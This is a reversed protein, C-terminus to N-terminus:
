STQREMWRFTTSCNILFHSSDKKFYKLQYLIFNSKNKNFLINMNLTWGFKTWKLCSNLINNLNSDNLDRFVQLCFLILNRNFTQKLILSLVVIGCSICVYICVSQCCCCSCCMLREDGVVPEDGGAVAAVFAAAAAAVEAAVAATASVSWCSEFAAVAADSCSYDINTGCCHAWWVGEWSM